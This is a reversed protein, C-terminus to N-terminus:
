LILFLTVMVVFGLLYGIYVQHPKHANIRLRAFAALGSLLLVLFLWFYPELHFLFALGTLAGTLGGWAILHLSIKSYYNIMLTLLVLITSGLMFLNFAPFAVEKNLAYYTFYYFFAMSFLPIIRENQSGMTLGQIFKFRWFVLALLSPIVVTLVFVFLFVLFKYKIAFLSIMYVPLQYLILLFLTPILLPHLVVSLTRAVFKEM